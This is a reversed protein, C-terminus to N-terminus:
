NKIVSDYYAYVYQVHIYSPICKGLVTIHSTSIPSSIVTPWGVLKLCLGIHYSLNVTCKGIPFNTIVSSYKVLKLGIEPEMSLLIVSDYQLM